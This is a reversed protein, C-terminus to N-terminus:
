GTDINQLCILRKVVNPFVHSLVAGVGYASADCDLKLPLDPGYHVLVKSSALQEKLAHFAKQCDKSWKQTRLHNLPRFLKSLHRIFQGYYSVFGLFSRLEHVNRPEPAKTIAEVKAPTAHLGDKDVIYKVSPQM